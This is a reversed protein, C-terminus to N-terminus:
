GDREWEPAPLPRILAAQSLWAFLTELEEREFDGFRQEAEDVSFARAGELVWEIVVRAEANVGLVTRAQPRNTPGSLIMCRLKSPDEDPELVASSNPLRIYRDFRLSTPYESTLGVSYAHASWARFAEAVPLNGMRGALEHLLRAFRTHEANEAGDDFGGYSPSRWEPSQGAYYQLFNLLLSLRSPARVVVSVSLSEGPQESTTHWLGSPLYLVSGPELTVSDLGQELLERTTRPFGRRYSQGFEVPAAAGPSFQVDPREVYRNPAHRFQKSGQIQILLQDFRDHHVALGSGAANAFAGLTVCQPLGLAHELARTFAQSAPLMRKLDTFYVTLGLRLLGSPHADSVPLQAGAEASGAAIEVPGMYTRCLSDISQLAGTRFFAPLRELPGHSVVLERKAFLESAPVGFLEHIPDGAAMVGM